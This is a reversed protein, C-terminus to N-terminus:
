NSRESEEQEGQWNTIDDETGDDRDPGKSWIDFSDSNNVGPSTYNFPEKWPDNPLSKQRLYGDSPYAKPIRGTTPAQILAELGQETSPYNGHDLRYADLAQSLQYIQTRAAQINAKKLKQFVNVGVLGTLLGIIVIVVMVEILTFGYRYSMSIKKERMCM